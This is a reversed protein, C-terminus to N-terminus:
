ADPAQPPSPSATSTTAARTSSSAPPTIALEDAGGTGLAAGHGPRVLQRSVRAQRRGGRDARSSCRGSTPRRGVLNNDIRVRKARRVRVAPFVPTSGGATPAPPAPDPGRRGLRPATRLGDAPSRTQIPGYFLNGAVKVDSAKEVCVFGNLTDNVLNGEVLVDDVTQNPM